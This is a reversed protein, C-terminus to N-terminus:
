AAFFSFIAGIAIAPAYPITRASHHDLALIPHPHFGKTWFGSVLDSSGDLVEILSGHYMAWALALAGGSIGTAVLAVILQAPGIWAGVAACLKLDGMGM